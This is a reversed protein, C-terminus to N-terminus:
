IEYEFEMGWLHFKKSDAEDTDKGDTVSGGYGGTHGSDGGANTSTSKPSGALLSTTHEIMEFEVTPTIYVKKM